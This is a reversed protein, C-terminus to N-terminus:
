LNYAVATPGGVRAYRVDRVERFGAEEAQEISLNNVMAFYTAELEAIKTELDTIAQNDADADAIALTTHAIAFGYLVFSTVIGAALLRFLQKKRSDKNMHTIITNM